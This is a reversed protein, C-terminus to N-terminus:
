DPRVVLYRVRLHELCRLVNDVEQSTSLKERSTRLFSGGSEYLRTVDSARCCFAAHTVRRTRARARLHLPPPPRLPSLAYEFRHIANQTVGM